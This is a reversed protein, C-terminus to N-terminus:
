PIRDLPAGRGALWGPEEIGFIVSAGEVGFGHGFVPGGAGIHEVHGHLFPNCEFALDDVNMVSHAVPSADAMGDSILFHGCDKEVMSEGGQGVVIAGSRPSTGWQGTGSRSAFVLVVVDGFVPGGIEVVAVPTDADIDRINRAHGVVENGIGYAAAGVKSGDFLEGDKGAQSNIVVGVEADARQSVNSGGEEVNM